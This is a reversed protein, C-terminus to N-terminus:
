FEKKSPTNTDKESVGKTADKDSASGTALSESDKRRCHVDFQRASNKKKQLLRQCQNRKDFFSLRRLRGTLM